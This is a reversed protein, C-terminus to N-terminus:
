ILGQFLKETFLCLIAFPTVDHEFEDIKLLLAADGTLKELPPASDLDDTPLGENVVIIGFPGAAYVVIERFQDVFRGIRGTEAAVFAPDIQGISNIKWNRSM